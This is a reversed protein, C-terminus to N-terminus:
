DREREREKERESEREREREKRLIQSISKEANQKHELLYCRYKNPGLRNL